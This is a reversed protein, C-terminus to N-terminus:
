DRAVILFAPYNAFEFDRQDGGAKPKALAYAHGSRGEFCGEKKKRLTIMAVANEEDWDPALYINSAAWSEWRVRIGGDFPVGQYKDYIFVDVGEARAKVSSSSSSSSSLSLSSFFDLEFRWFRLPIEGSLGTFISSSPM